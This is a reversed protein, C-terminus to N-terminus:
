EKPWEYPFFKAAEEPTIQVGLTSAAHAMVPDRTNALDAATPLMLEDPTVGAHELSKGDTMILDADTISAGFFVKIDMGTSYNYHMSEMVSGSSHDGFVVGRKEIQIVRAFLESASASRSDLLVVLKGTFCDHRSKAVMPKSGSRQVRDGIKVDNEFMGGLFYKLTEVAGGPNSRLDLILARHKRARSIMSGVESDSFIFEPLKLVLLEDGLDVFQARMLHEENEMNRFLDFINQGTTLDNVRSLERMKAVVEVQRQKGSPDRLDLHLSPQPRLANFVYEMRWLDNRNPVFGNVALLEDGPKVGKAEADSGPHIRTVYCHNGMMQYQLGYQHRYPRAPPLFFTHSDNLSDLAGAIHSLAMNLSPSTEIKQKAEAVRADWDLGHFKPDYYHKRVDNAIVKLMDKTRDRDFASLQASPNQQQSLAFQSLVPTVSLCAVLCVFARKM